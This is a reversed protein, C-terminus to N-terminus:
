VGAQYLENHGRRFINKAANKDRDHKMCCLPCKWHRVNLTLDELKYGCNWCLRSTDKALVVEIHRGAREDKYELMVRLKYWSADNINDKLTANSNGSQLMSKIHLDEIYIVQNEDILSKSVKHLFDKRQNRLHFWAKNLKARTKNYNKSGKEKRSLKTQLKKIKKKSKELHKPNEIKSFHKGDVKKKHYVTAYTKVGLDLACEQKVPKLPKLDESEVIYSIWYREGEFRITARKIVGDIERYLYSNVTGFKPIFVTHNKYNIHNEKRVAYDDTTYSQTPNKRSKYKPYRSIKKFLRQYAEVLFGATCQFSKAEVENLFDYKKTHKLDTIHNNLDFKTPLKGTKELVKKCHDLCLNWILRNCGVTKWFLVKQEESPYIEFKFGQLM